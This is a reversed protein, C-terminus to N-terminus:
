YQESDTAEILRRYQEPTDVDWGIRDDPWDVTEAHFRSFVLRGGADGEIGELLAFAERGFLVPNARRSGVVPMVLPNLTTEFRDLIQKVLDMPIQPQDSLFYLAASCDAPISKVSLRVSASQGSRWDPNTVIEVPLGALAERIPGDVAGIVVQVPNLGSELATQAVKRVFPTGHYDLLQKPQGYRESSGAALIVGAVKTAVRLIAEGALRRGVSGILVREYGALLSGALAYGIEELNHNDAQNLLVIKRAAAPINKLGGQPHLLVRVLAEPTVSEGMKLGSLAAFREARHVNVDELPKGLASLGAVVLVSNVWTPIAPEHEAPAKLSLRRAGDAEVILAAQHEQAFHFVTDLEKEDLGQVRGDAENLAGTILVVKNELSVLNNLDNDDNFFLHQDALQLQNIALHTSATLIVPGPLDRALRFLASTKGGAGVIALRLNKDAGVAKALNM